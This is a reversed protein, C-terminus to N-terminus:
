QKSSERDLSALERVLVNHWPGSPTQEILRQLTRAHAVRLADSASTRIDPVVGVGEWNTGGIASRVKGNPVTVELDDNLRYPRGPNAAGATTEGIVEARRREQVIFALGEGASFTRKDTLLYLPRGEARGALPTTETRYCRASGSRPVIEFLALGPKDLLYSAFLAVTDPSGGGNARLDVVLADANRLIQMAAAIAERAEDPRYFSTINIYGVNGPLIEVRQVGFNSRRAGLARPEDPGSTASVPKPVVAVALHQDHTLVFLDRTLMAALADLTQSDAYRADSLWRRLSTDVRAALEADVYERHIIKALSEVTARVFEAGIASHALPRVDTQACLYASGFVFALGLAAGFRSKLSGFREYLLRYEGFHEQDYM